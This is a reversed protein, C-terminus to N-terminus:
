AIAATERNHWVNYTIECAHPKWVVSKIHNYEVWRM